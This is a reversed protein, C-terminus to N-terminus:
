ATRPPWVKASLCEMCDKLTKNLDQADISDFLQDEPKKAARCCCSLRVAQRTVLGTQASTQVAHCSSPAVPLACSLCVTCTTACPQSCAPSCFSERKGFVTKKTWKGINRYVAAAVEVEKTYQVSDKGLFDFEITNPKLDDEVCKVNEAQAAAPRCTSRSHCSSPLSRLFLVVCVFHASWHGVSQPTVSHSPVVASTCPLRLQGARWTRGHARVHMIASTYSWRVKLNCCGVTDAEEEDKEHGARLALIDIFYLATAIQAKQEDKSLWDKEYQASCPSWPHAGTLMVAAPM